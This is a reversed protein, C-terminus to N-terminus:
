ARAAAAAHRHRAAAHLAASRGSCMVCHASPARSCGHWLSVADSVVWSCAIHLGIHPSPPAVRVKGKAGASLLMCAQGIAVGVGVTQVEVNSYSMTDYIATAETEFGVTTGDARTCGTSNIYLYIPKSPSTYQLYLLEAVILETM